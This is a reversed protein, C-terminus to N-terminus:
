DGEVASEWWKMGDFKELVIQLTKGGEAGGSEVTWVTEDPKVKYPFKGDIIPAVGGKLGVYIKSTGIDVKLMKAAVDAKLPVNITVESLTQTWHYRDTFGGNMYPTAGESKKPKGEDDYSTVSSEKEPIHPVSPKLGGPASEESKPPPPNENVPEEDEILEVTAESQGTKRKLM